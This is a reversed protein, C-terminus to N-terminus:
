TQPSWQSYMQSHRKNVDYKHVKPIEHKKNPLRYENWYICLSSSLEIIQDVESTM